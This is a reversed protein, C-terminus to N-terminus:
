AWSQILLVDGGLAHCVMGGVDPKLGCRKGRNRPGAARAAARMAADASRSLVGCGSSEGGGGYTAALALKCGMARACPGGERGQHLPPARTRSLMAPARCHCTHSRQTSARQHAPTPPDGACDCNCLHGAKACPPHSGRAQAHHCASCCQRQSKSTHNDIPAGRFRQWPESARSPM